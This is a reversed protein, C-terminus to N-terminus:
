HQITFFSVIVYVLAECICWVILILIHLQLYLICVKRRDTSLPPVIVRIKEADNSPTALIIAAVIVKDDLKLSCLM